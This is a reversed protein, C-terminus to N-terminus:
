IDNAAENLCTNCYWNYNYRNNVDLQYPCYTWRLHKHSNCSPCHTPKPKSPPTNPDIPPVYHKYKKREPRRCTFCKRHNTHVNKFFAFCDDCKFYKNKEPYSPTSMPHQLCLPCRFNKTDISKYIRVSNDCFFVTCQGIDGKNYLPM